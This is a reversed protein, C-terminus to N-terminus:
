INSLTIWISKSNWCAQHQVWLGRTCFRNRVGGPGGRVCSWAIGEPGTATVQSCLEASAWVGQSSSCAAMLGGRKLSFL